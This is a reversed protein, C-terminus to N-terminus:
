DLLKGKLHQCIRIHQQRRQTTCSLFVSQDMGQPGTRSSNILYVKTAVQFYFSLNSWHNHCYLNNIEGDFSGVTDAFQLLKGYTDASPKFVFVGSNFCDPWGVDPAASLEGRDFLEDCNQLM